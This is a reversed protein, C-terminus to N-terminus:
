DTIVIVCVEPHAAQLQALVKEGRFESMKMDLLLIDPLSQQVAAFLDNPHSFTRVSYAGEDRLTDEMFNLFDSDDDLVAVNVMESANISKALKLASLRM